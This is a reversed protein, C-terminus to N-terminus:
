QCSGSEENIDDTWTLVKESIVRNTYLTLECLVYYDSESKDIPVIISEPFKTKYAQASKTYPNEPDDCVRFVCAGPLSIKSNYDELQAKVYTSGSKKLIYGQSYYEKPAMCGKVCTNDPLIPATLVEDGKYVRSNNSGGCSVLISLALYSLIFTLQKM